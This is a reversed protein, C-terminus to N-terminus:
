EIKPLFIAATALDCRSIILLKIYGDQTIDSLCVGKLLFKKLLYDCFVFCIPTNCFIQANSFKDVTLSYIRISLRPSM